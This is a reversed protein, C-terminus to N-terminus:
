LEPIAKIENSKGEVAVEGLTLKAETAL